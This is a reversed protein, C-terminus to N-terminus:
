ISPIHGEHMLFRSSSKMLIPLSKHHVAARVLLCFESLNIFFCVPISCAGLLLHHLNVYNNDYKCTPLPWARCAPSCAVWCHCKFSWMEHNGQVHISADFHVIFGDQRTEDTACKKGMCVAIARPGLDAELKVDKLM